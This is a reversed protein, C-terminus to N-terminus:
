HHRRRQSCPLSTSTSVTPGPPNGAGVSGRDGSRGDQSRYIRLAQAKIPLYGTIDIRVTPTGEPGELEAEFRRAVDPSPRTTLPAGTCLRRIRLVGRGRGRHVAIHDPHRSMGDAGLHHRRRAQRTADTGGGTPRGQRPRGRGDERGEYGLFVPPHAGYLQMVARHEAERVAPLDERTINMGGTGLTGWEGRTATVVTVEVGEQVSRAITGGAVSTEDDPHAFVALIRRPGVADPRGVISGGRSAKQSCRGHSPSHLSPKQVIIAAAPWRLESASCRKRLARTRPEFGLPPEVGSMSLGRALEKRCTVIGDDLGGGVRRRGEEHPGRVDRLLWFLLSAMGIVSRIDIVIASAAAAMRERCSEGTSNVWAQRSWTSRWSPFSLAKRVTSPSWAKARRGAPPALSLGLCPDRPGHVADRVGDLVDVVGLSHAGGDPGADELVVHRVM